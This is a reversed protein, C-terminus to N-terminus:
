HSFPWLPLDGPARQHFSCGDDRGGEARGGKGGKNEGDGQYSYAGKHATWAPAVLHDTSVQIEVPNGEIAPGKGRGTGGSLAVLDPRPLRLGRRQRLGAESAPASGVAVTTVM